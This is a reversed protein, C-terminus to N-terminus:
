GRIHRLIILTDACRALRIKGFRKGGDEPLGAEKLWFEYANFEWARKNQASSEFMM